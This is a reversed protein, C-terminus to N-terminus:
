ESGILVFYYICLSPEQVVDQSICFNNVFFPFKTTIDRVDINVVIWHLWSQCGPNDAYPADPDVM